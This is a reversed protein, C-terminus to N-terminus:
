GYPEFHHPVGAQELRKAIADLSANFADNGGIRWTGSMQDVLRVAAREDFDRQLAYFPEPAKRSSSDVGPFASSGQQCLAAAAMVLLGAAARRNAPWSSM